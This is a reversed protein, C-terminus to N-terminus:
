RLCHINGNEVNPVLFISGLDTQVLVCSFLVLIILVCMQQDFVFSCVDGLIVQLPDNLSCKPTDKACLAATCHLVSILFMRRGLASM